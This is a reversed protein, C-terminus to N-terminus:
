HVPPPKASVPGHVPVADPIRPPLVFQLPSKLATLIVSALLRLWDWAQQQLEPRPGVQEVM